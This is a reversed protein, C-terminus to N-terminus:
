IYLDRVRSVYRSGYNCVCFLYFCIKLIDVFVLCIGRLKDLM